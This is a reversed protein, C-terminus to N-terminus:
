WTFTGDTSPSYALPAPSVWRTLWAVGFSGDSDSPIPDPTPTPQPPPALPQVGRVLLVLDQHDNDVSVECALWFWNARVMDDQRYPYVKIKHTMKGFREIQRNRQDQSYVTEGQASFAPNSESSQVYFGFVPSRPEIRHVPFAPQTRIGRRSLSGEAAPGCAFLFRLEDPQHAQYIGVRIAPATDRDQAYKAVPIIEVSEAGALRFLGQTPGAHYIEDHWQMAFGLREFVEMLNPADQSYGHMAWALASGYLLVFYLLSKM